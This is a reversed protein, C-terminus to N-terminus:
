RPIRFTKTVTLADAPFGTSSVWASPIAVVTGGAQSTFDSLAPAIKSGGRAKILKAPVPITITGKAANFKAHVLGLEKCTTLNAENTTCNGRVAFPAMGPNRPPPCTSATPDCTGRSFNTFKGDLEAYKGNVTFGWVYRVAEPTGGIPPLGNVKIQFNVKKANGTISAQLLDMGLAEGVPSLSNDGNPGNQGYDGKADKGVVGAFASASPGLVLAAVALFLVSNRLKRM